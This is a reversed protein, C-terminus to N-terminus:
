GGSPEFQFCVESIGCGTGGDVGNPVDRVFLTRGDPCTALLALPCDAAVGGGLDVGSDCALGWVEQPTTGTGSGCGPVWSAEPWPAPVLPTFATGANLVVSSPTVTLTVPAGSWAGMSEASSVRAGVLAYTGSGIRAGEGGGALDSETPPDGTLEPDDVRASACGVTAVVWVLRRM